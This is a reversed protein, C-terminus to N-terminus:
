YVIYLLIFNLNIIFIFYHEWKMFMLFIVTKILVRTSTAEDDLLLGHEDKYIREAEEVVSQLSKDVELKLLVDRIQLIRRDWEAIANAQKRFKSTQEQLEVNWGKIIEEVTKGTIESRLKPASAVATGGNFVLLLVIYISIISIVPGSSSSIVLASSTQATTTTVTSITTASAPVGRQM